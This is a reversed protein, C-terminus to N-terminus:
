AHWAARLTIQHMLTLMLIVTNIRLAPSVYTGRVLGKHAQPTLECHWALLFYACRPSVYLLDEKSIGAAQIIGM